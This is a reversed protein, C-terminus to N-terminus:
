LILTLTPGGYGAGCGGRGGPSLAARGGTAHANNHAHCIYIVYAHCMCSTHMRPAHNTRAHHTPTPQMHASRLPPRGCRRATSAYSQPWPPSDRRPSLTVPADTKRVSLLTSSAVVGLVPGLARVCVCACSMLAAVDLVLSATYMCMPNNLRAAGRRGCCLGLDGM